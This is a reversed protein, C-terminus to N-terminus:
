YADQRTQVAKLVSLSRYFLDKPLVPLNLSLSPFSSPLPLLDRCLSLLPNIFLYTHVLIEM